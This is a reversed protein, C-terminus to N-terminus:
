RTLNSRPPISKEVRQIGGSDAPVTAGGTARALDRFGSSRIGRVKRERAPSPVEHAFQTQNKFRGVM